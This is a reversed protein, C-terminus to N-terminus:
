VETSLSTNCGHVTCKSHMRRVTFRNRGQLLPKNETKIDGNVGMSESVKQYVFSMSQYFQRGM